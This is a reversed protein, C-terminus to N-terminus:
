PVYLATGGIDLFSRGAGNSRAQADWYCNSSDEAPCPPVSVGVLAAATLALVLANGIIRRRPM